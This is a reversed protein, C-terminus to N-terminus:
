LGLAAKLDPISLGVSALKEDITPEPTPAPIHAAIGAAAQAETLEGGVILKGDRVYVDTCGLEAKLQEGNIADPIEFEYFM